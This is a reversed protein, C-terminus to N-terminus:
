NTIYTITFLVMAKSSSNIVGAGGIAMTFHGDNFQGIYCVNNERSIYGAHVAYSAPFYKSNKFRFIEVDSGGSTINNIQAYLQVVKGFRVGHINHISGGRLNGVTVISKHNELTLFHEQQIEDENVHRRWPSWVGNYFYRHYESGNGNYPFAMQMRHATTSKSGYFYTIIYMYQNTGIPTKLHTLIAHDLTTDSDIGASQYKVIGNGIVTGFRDMIDSKFSTAREFISPLAVEFGDNVAPKGFSIGKGGKKLDIIYNKAAISRLSSSSGNSDTVTVRINYVYEMSLSGGVVKSVNGSTGSASVPVSSWTEANEEKFEIKIATVTKDTAWAFKVLAYAGEDALTGSSNCRDATFNAIRPAVYALEWIAYLTIAVNATYTAGAAYAVTTSGASTGWGKFNYNTRTPKTSSLILNVGYTKTQNGPAGTGGNANYSVTYTNAKWVAYLTLNSNGTYSAGPAYSVGGSASTAWGQFSYGDRTPKTSSLTINKGYWKTQNSPAGTGGNANYSVTYSALAPISFSVAVSGSSGAYEINTYSASANGSTASTGKTYTKSYTGILVQNTTSWSSNSTTNINKSGITTTPTGSWGYKFTNSSDECRYRTWLWIAITVTRQTATDSTTVNIGIRGQKTGSGRVTGWQTSSPAAM